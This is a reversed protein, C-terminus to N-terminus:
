KSRILKDILKNIIRNRSEEYNFSYNMSEEKQSINGRISKFIEGSDNNVSNNNTLTTNNSINLIKIIVDWISQDNIHDIMRELLGGSTGEKDDSWHYIYHMVEKQRYNLLNLVVKQVYGSLVPNHEYEKGNTIKDETKTYFSFLLDLLEYKSGSSKNKTIIEEVIEEDECLLNVEDEEISLNNQNTPIDSEAKISIHM